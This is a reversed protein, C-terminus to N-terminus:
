RGLAGSGVAKGSEQRQYWERRIKPSRAAARAHNHLRSMAFDCLDCTVRWVTERWQEIHIDSM